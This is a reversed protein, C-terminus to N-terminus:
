FSKAQEETDFQVFRKSKSHAGPIGAKRINHFLEKEMSDIIHLASLAGIADFLGSGSEFDIDQLEKGQNGSINRIFLVKIVDELAKRANGAAHEFDKRHVYDYAERINKRLESYDM